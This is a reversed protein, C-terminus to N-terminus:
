TLCGFTLVTYHGRLSDTTFTKGTHDYVSLSPLTDGITPTQAVFAAEDKEKQEQSQVQKTLSAFLALVSALCVFSIKSSM